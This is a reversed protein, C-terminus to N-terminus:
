AADAQMGPLVHQYTAMTFAPHAHGHRESVVKLPVGAQLLLTAHTHRLGHLTLPPLDTRSVIRDFAQSLTQPHLLNGDPKAFLEGPVGEAQWTRQQDTHWRALVDVTAADLDITRASGPTKGPTEVLNTGVCVIGRAVTLRAGDLDIDRWRLGLLEGRRMGTHAALWFSRHHVQGSAEQLFRGLEIANWAM